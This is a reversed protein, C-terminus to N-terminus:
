RSSEKLDPALSRGLGERVGRPAYGFDTIAPGCDLDADNTFGAVAYPTLPPNTMVRSLVGAVARCIPLPIHLFPRSAGELQLVLKALERLTIPEPGSLNYTKGFCAENGVIRALGDVVDDSYVPRKKASGPGVFPVVPFRRLYKRFLMFEQGGTEDYVLTPRVITHALRMEAAVINEADLKARGYPTLRPYVVSASSVYVFHRVGAGAAAAVLNATGRRNIADYDRPDRALIVAALHAVSDVGTAECRGCLGRAPRPLRVGRRGGR